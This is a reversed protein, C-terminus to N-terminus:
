YAMLHNGIQRLLNKFKLILRDYSYGLLGITFLAFIIRSVLLLQHLTISPTTTAKEVFASAQLPNQRKKFTIAQSNTM